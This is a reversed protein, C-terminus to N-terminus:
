GLAIGTMEVAKNVKRHYRMETERAIAPRNAYAKECLQTFSNASLNEIGDTLMGNLTEQDRGSSGAIANMFGECYRMVDNTREPTWADPIVAALMAEVAVESVDRGETRAIAATHESLNRIEVPQPIGKAAFHRELVSRDISKFNRSALVDYGHTAAEALIKRDNPKKDRFAEKPLEDYADAYDMRNLNGVFLYASDNRDREEDWWQLAANWAAKAVTKSQSKYVKHRM